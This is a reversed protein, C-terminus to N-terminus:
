SRHSPPICEPTIGQHSLTNLDNWGDESSTATRIANITVSYSEEMASIHKPTEEDAIPSALIPLVDTQENPIEFITRSGIILSQDRPRSTSQSKKDISTTDGIHLREDQQDKQLEETNSCISSTRAAFLQEDEDDIGTIIPEFEDELGEVWRRVDECSGDLILAIRLITGDLTEATSAISDDSAPMIDLAIQRRVAEPLSKLQMLLPIYGATLASSEFRM